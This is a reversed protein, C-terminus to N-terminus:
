YRKSEDYKDTPEDRNKSPPLFLPLAFIGITVLVVFIITAVFM